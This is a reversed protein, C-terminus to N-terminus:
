GNWREALTVGATGNNYGGVATCATASACSVGGLVISSGTACDVAHRLSGIARDPWTLITGLACDIQVPLVEVDDREQDGGPSGGILPL